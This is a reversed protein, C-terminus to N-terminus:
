QLMRTFTEKVANSEYKDISYHISMKTERETQERWLDCFKM